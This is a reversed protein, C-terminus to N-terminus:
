VSVTIMEVNPYIDKRSLITYNLNNLGSAIIHMKKTELCLYKFKNYEFDTRSDFDRDLHRDDIDDKIFFNKNVLPNNRSTLINKEVIVNMLEARNQLAKDEVGWGWMNNPYGNTKLFTENDFKIITGLTDCDPTLIGMFTNNKVSLNKNYLEIICNEKPIIDVDHNFFYESQLKYENFGINLLLGRNFLKGDNQEVVVVKFPKLYKEFLPIADRIFIDLHAARNRYPVIIINKYM